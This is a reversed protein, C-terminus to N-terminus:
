DTRDSRPRSIARPMVRFRWLLLPRTLVLGAIFGGIHAAVAIEGLGTGASGAFGILLQLGTWAAGLWLMRVVNASLRWVARVSQQSYLLAYTALVASIAGSAGVMPVISSPDIAWQAFAAAYAGVVYLLVLPWVGLVKEVQGSCFLLMLLNFGIHAWGAHVLTASLPTLWVPLWPPAADPGLDFGEVRAPIFGGIIAADQTLGSSLLILFAILTIGALLKTAPGPSISM